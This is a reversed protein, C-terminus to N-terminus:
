PGFDVLLRAELIGWSGRWSEELRLLDAVCDVVCAELGRFRMGLERSCKSADVAYCKEGVGTGPKGIPVKHRLAPFRARVIDCIDQYAFTGASTLYRQGAALPSEFALLHAKAVDRVDCFASYDTEPVDSETGDILRYIDACSLSLQSMTTVPNAIPGYIMPPCITTIEFNPSETRVFDFAAKEAFTKGACYATGADAVKATAYDIPNWDEETYTHDPWLGRTMDTMAAFSSTIIVRRISRSHAKISKLLGLTGDIAPILLEKEM